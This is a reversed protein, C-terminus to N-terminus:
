ATVLHGVKLAALGATFPSRTVHLRLDYTGVPFTQNLTAYLGSNFAWDPDTMNGPIACNVAAGGSTSHIITENVLLIFNDGTCYLDTIAFYFPHSATVLLTPHILVGVNTFNFPFWVGIQPTDADMMRKEMPGNINIAAPLASSLSGLLLLSFIASFM